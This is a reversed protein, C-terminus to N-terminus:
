STQHIAVEIKSTRELMSMTAGRQYKTWQRKFHFETLNMLSGSTSRFDANRATQTRWMLIWVASAECKICDQLNILLRRHIVCIFLDQLCWSFHAVLKISRDYDEFDLRCDSKHVCIRWVYEAMFSCGLTCSGTIRNLIFKFLSLGSSSSLGGGDLKSSSIWLNRICTSIPSLHTVFQCYNWKSYYVEIVDM